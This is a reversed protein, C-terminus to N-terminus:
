PGLSVPIKEMMVCLLNGEPDRLPTDHTVFLLKGVRNTRPPLPSTSAAVQRMRERMGDRAPGPHLEAVDLGVVREHEWDRGTVLAVYALMARNAYLIRGDTGILLVPHSLADLALEFPLM